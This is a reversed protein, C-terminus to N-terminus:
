HVCRDRAPRRSCARNQCNWSAACTTTGGAAMGVQYTSRIWNACCVPTGSMALKSDSVFSGARSFSISASRALPYSGPIVVAGAKSTPSMSRSPACGRLTRRDSRGDDADDQEEGVVCSSAQYSHIAKLLRMEAQLGRTRLDEVAVRVACGYGRRPVGAGGARREHGAGQDGQCQGLLLM